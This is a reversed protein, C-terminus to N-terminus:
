TNSLKKIVSMGAEVFSVTQDSALAPKMLINNRSMRGRLQLQKAIINCCRDALQSFM